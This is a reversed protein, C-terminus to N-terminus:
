PKSEENFFAETVVENEPCRDREAAERTPFRRACRIDRVYSSRSGPKAVYGGTDNTRRLVYSM